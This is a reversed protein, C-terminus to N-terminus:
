CTPTACWGCPRARPAHDGDAILRPRKGVGRITLRAQTWVVAQQRYEGSRIEITDGDRAIRAAEQISRVPEQPGVVITRGSTAAPIRQQPPQGPRRRDIPM